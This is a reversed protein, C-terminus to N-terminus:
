SREVEEKKRIEKKKKEGRKEERKEERLLYKSLEWYTDLVKSSVISYAIDDLNFM